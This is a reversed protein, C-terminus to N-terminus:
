IRSKQIPGLETAQAESNVKVGSDSENAAGLMHVAKGVDAYDLGHTPHTKVLKHILGGMDSDDDLIVYSTVEPHKALWRDIEVGRIVGHDVPTKDIVEGEVGWETLLTRLEEVTRGTRWMSSVVIKAGTEKILRNLLHVCYMDGSHYRTHATVIVGDFDLFIVKM